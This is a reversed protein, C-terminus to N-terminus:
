EAPSEAPAPTQEGEEAAAPTATEFAEPPLRREELMAAAEDLAREEAVTVGGKGPDTENPGCAALLVALAFPALNRMAAM